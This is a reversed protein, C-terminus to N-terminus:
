SNAVSELINESIAQAVEIKGEESNLYTFDNSDSIFGLEILISPIPNKDIVYLYGFEDTLKIGRNQTYGLDSLGKEISLVLSSLKENRNDTYLEFGKAGDDYESSNLHISIFYDAENEVAIDIRNQLDSVEGSWDQEDTIRTYIVHMGQKSLMEGIKLTIDLTIDKEYIGSQSISGSDM